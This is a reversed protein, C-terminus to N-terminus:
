LLEPNQYINGIVIDEHCFSLLMGRKGDRSRGLWNCNGEVKTVIYITEGHLLIDGDYIEVGNPDKQETYQLPTLNSFNVKEKYLEELTYAKETMRGVIRNWFKFKIKRQM